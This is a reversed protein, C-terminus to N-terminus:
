LIFNAQQTNQYSQQDERGEHHNFRSLCAIECICMCVDAHRNGNSHQQKSIKKKYYCFLSLQEVGLINCISPIKFYKYTLLDFKISEKIGM